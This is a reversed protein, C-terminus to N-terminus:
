TVQANVVDSIVTVASFFEDPDHIVLGPLNWIAESLGDHGWWSRQQQKLEVVSRPTQHFRDRKKGRSNGDGAGDAAKMITEEEEPNFWM